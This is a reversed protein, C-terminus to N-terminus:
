EQKRTIKLTSEIPLEEWTDMGSGDSNCIFWGGAERGGAWLMYRTIIHDVSKGSEPLFDVGSVIEGHLHLDFDVQSYNGSTGPDPDVITLDNMTIHVQDFGGNSRTYSIDWDDPAQFAIVGAATLLASCDKAFIGGKIGSSGNGNHLVELTDNGPLSKGKRKTTLNGSVFTFNRTLDATYVPVPGTKGSGGPNPPKAAFASVTFGLFVLTTLLTLYRNKM